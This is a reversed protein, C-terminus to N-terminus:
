SSQRHVAIDLLILYLAVRVNFSSNLFRKNIKFNSSSMFTDVIAVCVMYLHWWGCEIHHEPCRLETMLPAFITIIFLYTRYICCPKSIRNLRYEAGNITQTQFYHGSAIRAMIMLHSLMVYM